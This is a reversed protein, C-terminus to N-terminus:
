RVTIVTTLKCRFEGVDCHRPTFCQFIDCCNSGTSLVGYRTPSQWWKICHNANLTAPPPDTVNSITVLTAITCHCTAPPPHCELNDDLNRDHSHCEAIRRTVNSIAITRTVNSSFLWSVWSSSNFELYNYEQGWSSVAPLTSGYLPRALAPHM